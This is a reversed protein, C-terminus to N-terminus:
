KYGGIRVCMKLGVAFSSMYISKPNSSFIASDYAYTPSYTDNFHQTIPHQYEAFLYFRILDDRLENSRSNTNTYGNKNTTTIMKLGLTGSVELAAGFIGKFTSKVQKLNNDTDPSWSDMDIRTASVPISAGVGSYLSFKFFSNPKGMRFKILLPVDFYKIAVSDVNSLNNVRAGIVSYNIDTGFGIISMPSILDLSLGASIGKAKSTSLNGDVRNTFWPILYKGNMGIGWKANHFTLFTLRYNDEDDDDSQAYSFAFINLILAITLLIKNM